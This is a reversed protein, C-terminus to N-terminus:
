SSSGGVATRPWSVGRLLDAIQAASAAWTYRAGRERAAASMRRHLDEHDLRLVAATAAGVDRAVSWGTVGDEITEPLGGEAAVIVPCGVAQAELAVLGLPEERALYLTAHASAYLEALEGDSIAMKVTAPVGLGRALALLRSADSPAPRPAVITVPRPQPLAAAVEIVLEHGKAATLAGVSLLFDQRHRDPSRHRLEDAVGMPVVVADRGYREQIASATYASNTAVRAAACTTAHDLRRERAYMGAYLPRTVANRSSLTRPDDDVPRPEDCFYVAPPVGTELVPPAKLYQCPNLYVVDAGAERVTEAARRWATQVAVLDVYRAPPRAWRNLRPALRRLPIVRAEPTIPSATSLCIETVGADLSALQCALRRRAGGAPLNHVVAVEV